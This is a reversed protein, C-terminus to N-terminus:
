LNVISIYSIFLNFKQNYDIIISIDSDETIFVHKLNLTKEMREFNYIESLTILDVRPIFVEFNQELLIINILQKM